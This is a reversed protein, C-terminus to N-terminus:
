NTGHAAWAALDTWLIAYEIVEDARALLTPPVSLGLTKATKVNIVLEYKTPQQVPLDAPSTGTLIKDVYGAARAYLDPLNVGYSLLGGADVTERYSYAGALRQVRAFNAILQGNAFNARDSSVFM